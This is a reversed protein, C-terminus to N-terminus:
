GHAPEAAAARRRRGARSMREALYDLGFIDGVEGYGTLEGCRWRMVSQYSVHCPNFSYWPHGAVAAGHMEWSRGRQDTAHVVIGTPLMAARSASIRASVLGHVVGDEAVFGFRLADYTVEGDTLDLPVALHFALRPGFNISIWSVSRTGLEPRPGWSHDMGEYCDVAYTSGRLTLQGTVHGKAEFHGNSWAVGLRPDTAQGTQLLPNEAPDHPDFPQHLARFDLEFACSGLRDQYSFHYAKPGDTAHVSLGNALTYRRFSPPCPLHMQSDTFDIEWPQLCLGESVLISSIAVGLNPRALVYLNGFIGPEPIFFPLFTTETWTPDSPDRAHFDCDADVIM